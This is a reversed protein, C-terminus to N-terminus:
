RFSACLSFCEEDTERRGTTTSMSQFFQPYCGTEESVDRQERMSAYFKRAVESRTTQQDAQLNRVLTYLKPQRPPFYISPRPCVVVPPDPTHRHCNASKKRCFCLLAISLTVTFLIVLGLWFPHLWDDDYMRSHDRKTECLSSLYADGDFSIISFAKENCIEFDNLLSTGNGSLFLSCM